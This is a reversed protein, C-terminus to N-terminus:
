INWAFIQERKPVETYIKKGLVKNMLDSYSNIGQKKLRNNMAAVEVIVALNKGPKVPVSIYPVDIGLINVYREVSGLRDYVRDNDWVEFNVVLDITEFNKISNVGFLQQVNIIGVGRVEIFRSINSPSFGILSNISHRKIETLDDSIFKHGRHILELAVESKGIGSEGVLLIGEGHISLFGAPRTITPQMQEELFNTIESIFLSTSKQVLFIPVRYRHSFKFIIPDPPLEHTLFFAAFKRSFLSEFIEIKESPLLTSVFHRESDGMVLISGSNSDSKFGMLELGFRYIYPSTVVIDDYDCKDPDSLFKADAFNVVECLKVSKM